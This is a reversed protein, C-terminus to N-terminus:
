RHRDERPGGPRMGRVLERRFKMEAQKVKYIKKSSLVNRFKSIYSKELRDTAMSYEVFSDLIETYTEESTSTDEGRRFLDWAQDNISRKQEQYEFYLPFFKDAEADTLEAERKLYEQQRTMFEDHGGRRNQANLTLPLVTLTTILIILFKRM